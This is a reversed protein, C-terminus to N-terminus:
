KRREKTSLELHQRQRENLEYEWLWCGDDTGDSLHYLDKRNAKLKPQKAKPPTQIISLRLREYDEYDLSEIHEREEEYNKCRGMPLFTPKSAIDM